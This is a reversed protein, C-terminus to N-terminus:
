WDIKNSQGSKSPDQNEFSRSKSKIKKDALDALSSGKKINRSKLSILLSEKEQKLIINQFKIKVM